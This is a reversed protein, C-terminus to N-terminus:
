RRGRASAALFFSAASVVFVSYDLPPKFGLALVMTTFFSATLLGSAFAFVSLRWGIILGIAIAVEAATAVWALAPFLSRPAFSNLVGVYDMFPSWAGWAVNKSGPAGWFGFRDAVASLYGAAL